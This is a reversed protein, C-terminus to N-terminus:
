ADVCGNRRAGRLRARFGALGSDVLGPLGAELGHDLEHLPMMVFSFRARVEFGPDPAGGYAALAREGVSPMERLWWAFDWAPDGM